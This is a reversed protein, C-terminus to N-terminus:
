LFFYKNREIDRYNLWIIKYLMYFWINRRIVFFYFGYIRIKDWDERKLIEDTKNCLKGFYSM